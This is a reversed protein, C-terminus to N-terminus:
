QAGKRQNRPEQCPVREVLCANGWFINSVAIFRCPVDQYFLETTLSPQSNSRAVDGEASRVICTLM